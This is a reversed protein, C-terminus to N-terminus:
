KMLGKFWNKLRHQWSVPTSEYRDPWHPRLEKEFNEIAETVDDIERLVWDVNLERKEVPLEPNYSSFGWRMSKGIAAQLEGLEEVLKATAFSLGPRMYKPDTM